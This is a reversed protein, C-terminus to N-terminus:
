AAKVEAGTRRAYLYLMAQIMTSYDAPMEKMDREYTGMIMRARALWVEQETDEWLRLLNHLMVGNAAPLGTDHGKHVRVLLGELGDTMFYGGKENDWFMGDVSYQLNQAKRLWHEVGTIEHLTLFAAEVYAYDELFGHTKSGELRLLLTEELMTDCLHEAAKLAAELYDPRQLIQSARALADIMLGNWGAIIKMDIDPRERAERVARLKLLIPQLEDRLNEYSRNKENALAMLHQRAYIAKGEVPPHGPHHPLDALGYCKSLLETEAPELVAQLEEETWVYYAGEVGSTEADVGAYFVGSPARLERLVFDFSQMAIDAHYPKGTLAHLEAYCRGMLAQTYLMKEFHPVSWERDSCYRHFGGGVADNLAGAAMHKLSHAAMELASDDKLHRYYALLFLIYNEHPFKPEQYFGKAEDDYVNQLYQLFQPAVEKHPTGDGEMVAASLEQAIVASIHAAAERLQPEAQQWRQAVEEVMRAPAREKGPLMVGAAFFPLGEPTLFLHNPWGASRTILERARQYIMDIEPRVDKDVKVPIFSANVIKAFAEDQYSQKEMVHCWYCAFYGVSLFIPKNQQKAEALVDDSWERWQIM